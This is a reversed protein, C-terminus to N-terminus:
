VPHVGPVNLFLIRVPTRPSIRAGPEQTDSIRDMALCRTDKPHDISQQTRTRLEAIPRKGFSLDM